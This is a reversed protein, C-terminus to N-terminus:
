LDLKAALDAPKPAYYVKLMRLERHGTIAALELINSMKPAIRTTAERRSDHFRVHLTNTKTRAERFIVDLNGSAVKFVKEDRAGKKFLGLLQIAAKALPVDREDGNKTTGLHAYREEVHIDRWRLSLIEGKRMATLLAFSFAAAIWQKANVPESKGDWGLEKIILDRDSDSVRQTRARPKKPKSILSCPNATIPVRWERIARTFVTSILNIERAVSGASVSALRLDRWEAMEAGAFATVPRQFEPYRNIFNRLRIAEWRGGRKTPSVEKAYKDLLYAVTPVGAKEAAVDERAAVVPKGADIKAELATAWEVAQAKTDFTKTATEGKKRVIARWSSGRKQYAAM